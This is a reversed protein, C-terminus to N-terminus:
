TFSILAEKPEGIDAAISVAMALAIAGDIVGTRLRPKVFRWGEGVPKPSAALVHRTLDPDGRHRIRRESIAESLRQAALAMPLPKQSHEIVTAELEADIQQALQEGGAEPDVVFTPRLYREALREIVSWITEYDTASGDRPPVIITTDGVVFTGADDEWIPVIATTDWRWGLDVGIIVGTAEEPIVAEPDECARWERESIAGQEGFMWVGCAFRAWQWPTMSPSDRRIALEAETQWPAPNARAVVALDERDDDPNLAWEHMAFERTHVHHYAGESKFGPLSHARTRLLGLPSEEDDGATSITLMQGNRPGLGDRFVGYLGDTKHRHLEDVLALTPIVGDATSEDAALVRIAGSDSRSEIHRYGKQVRARDELGSREVLMGAQRYLITAQDKSHAGVFCAADRTHLLHYLALAALLTTKGNKKPILILTERAGEFYDALMLKQEPYLEFSRGDELKLNGCFTVFQALSTTESKSKRATKKV